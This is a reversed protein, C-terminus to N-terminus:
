AARVQARGGRGCNSCVRPAIEDGAIRWDARGRRMQGCLSKTAHLLRSRDAWAANGSSRSRATGSSSKDEWGVGNTTSIRANARTRAAFARVRGCGCTQRSDAGGWQGGWV